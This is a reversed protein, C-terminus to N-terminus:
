DLGLPQDGPPPVAFIDTHGVEAGTRTTKIWGEVLKTDCGPLEMVALAQGRQLEEVLMRESASLRWPSDGEQVSYGALQLQDALESAATPGAAAGFGKDTMQHRNFAATIQNDAPRHPTWRQLGNYTLVCYIAARQKAVSKVLSGIYKASLLDCLASATVLDAPKAFVDDLGHTLDCQVFEVRITANGKRLTLQDDHVDSADAWIRLQRRADAHLAPDNDVLRWHQEAPLLSSTARLNAGTGSGLDIVSLSDRLAFWASLANALERNRAREDASERLALWEASFGGKSM